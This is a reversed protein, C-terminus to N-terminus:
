GRVDQRIEGSAHRFPVDTDGQNPAIGLHGAPRAYCPGVLTPDIAIGCRQHYFFRLADTSLRSYIGNAIAFSHSREGAVELRFSTGTHRYGSFDVHHAHDGSAPDRGHVTTRGQAVPVGAADFLRWALPTTAENAVTGRKSLGADYGVQNVRIMPHDDPPM